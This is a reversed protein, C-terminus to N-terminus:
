PLDTAWNVSAHLDEVQAFAKDHTVLVAGTAIVHAAILMDMNGLTKGSSELKARLAGYACAEDRGWPLIKVAALFWEMRERLATAEPRKALGYRIEAETIVSLCVVEDEKLNLMRARAAKSHGKAIYSVTNTDLMFLSTM